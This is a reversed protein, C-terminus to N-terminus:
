QWFQTNALKCYSEYAQGGSITKEGENTKLFHELRSTITQVFVSAQSRQPEYTFAELKRLSGTIVNLGNQVSSPAMRTSQSTAIEHLKQLSTVLDQEISPSPLIRLIRQLAYDEAKKGCLLEVVAEEIKWTPDHGTLEASNQKIVTKLRDSDNVDKTRFLVM